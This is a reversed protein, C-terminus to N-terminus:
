PTEKTTVRGSEWVDHLEKQSVASYPNKHKGVTVSGLKFARKKMAESYKVVARNPTDEHKNYGNFPDKNM